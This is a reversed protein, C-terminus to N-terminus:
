NEWNLTFFTIMDIMPQESSTLTLICTFYKSCVPLYSSYLRQNDNDDTIKSAAIKNSHYVVSALSCHAFIFLLQHLLTGSLGELPIRVFFIQFDHLFPFSIPKALTLISCHKGFLMLFAFDWARWNIRKLFLKTSMFNAFLLNCRNLIIQDTKIFTCMM